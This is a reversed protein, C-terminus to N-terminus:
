SDYGLRAMLALFRSREPEEIDAVLSPYDKSRFQKLTTLHKETLEGFEFGFRNVWEMTFRRPEKLFDEYRFQVCSEPRLTAFRMGQETLTRWVCAARTTQNWHRFMAVDEAELFWPAGYEGTVADQAAFDFNATQLFHDSFWGRAVMSSAVANGNDIVHFCLPRVFHALFTEFLPQFHPDTFILHPRVSQLYGTVAERRSLPGWAQQLDHNSYEKWYSEDAPNWNLNRGQIAPIFYDEMLIAKMLTAILPASSPNLRCAAPMLRVLAPAFLYYADRMSGLVKGLITTGSQGAGTIAILRDALYPDYNCAISSRSIM